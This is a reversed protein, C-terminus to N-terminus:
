SLKYTFEGVAPAPGINVLMPGADLRCCNNVSLYQGTIFTVMHVINFLLVPWLRVASTGVLSPERVIFYMVNEIPIRGLSLKNVPIKSM